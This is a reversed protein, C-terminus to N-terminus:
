AEQQNLQDAAVLQAKIAAIKDAATVAALDERAQIDEKIELRRVRNEADQKTVICSSLKDLKRAAIWVQLEDDYQAFNGELYKQAAVKGREDLSSLDYFARPDQEPELPISNEKEEETLNTEDLGMEEFTRIAGVELPFARRTALSEAVKEIMVTPNKDWTSEKGNYGAKYYEKFIVEAVAPFKRDKRHVKATCKVPRGEKDRDTFLETGDYQSHTNAIARYGDIGTMIQAPPQVWDGKKSQYKNGKIFWIQKLFPNLGTSQAIACFLKFEEDTAGKAVTERMTKVLAEDKWDVKMIETTM